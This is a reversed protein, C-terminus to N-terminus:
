IRKRETKAIEDLADDDFATCEDAKNLQETDVFSEHWAKDRKDLLEKLAELQQKLAHPPLNPKEFHFKTM